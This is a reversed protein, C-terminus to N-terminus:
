PFFWLQSEAGFCGFLLLLLVLFTTMRCMVVSMSEHLVVGEQGGTGRDEQGGTGREGPIPPLEDFVTAGKEDESLGSQKVFQVVDSERDVHKVSDLTSDM